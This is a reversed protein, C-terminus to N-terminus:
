RKGVQWKGLIQDPTPTLTKSVSPTLVRLKNKSNKIVNSPIWKTPLTTWRMEASAYTKNAYEQLHYIEWNDWGQQRYVLKSKLELAYPFHQYPTIRWRKKFLHTYNGLSTLSTDSSISGIRRLLQDYRSSHHGIFVIPMSKHFEVDIGPSTPSRPGNNHLQKRKTARTNYVNDFTVGSLLKM